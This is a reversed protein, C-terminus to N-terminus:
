KQEKPAKAAPTKAKNAEDYLGAAANAADVAQQIAQAHDSVRLLALNLVAGYTHFWVDHRAQEINM